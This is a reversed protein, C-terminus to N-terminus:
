NFIYKPHNIGVCLSPIKFGYVSTAATSKSTHCFGRIFFFLFSADSGYYNQRGKSKVYFDNFKIIRFVSIKKM